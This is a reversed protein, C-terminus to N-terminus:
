SEDTRGKMRLTMYKNQISKEVFGDNIKNINFYLPKISIIKLYRLDKVALNRIYYILINICSSEFGCGSLEYVFM